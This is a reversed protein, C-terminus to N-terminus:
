AIKPTAVAVFANAIKVLDEELFNYDEELPTNVFTDVVEKKSLM